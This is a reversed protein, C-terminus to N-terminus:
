EDDDEGEDEDGDDGEEDDDALSVTKWGHRETM